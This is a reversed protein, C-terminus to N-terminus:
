YWDDPVMLIAFQATVETNAAVANLARVRIDTKEPLIAPYEFHQCQNGTGTNNASVNWITRFVEGPNRVQLILDVERTTAGGGGKNTGYCFKKLIGVKDNPITYLAMLTQNPVGVIDIAAMLQTAPDDPIGDAVAADATDTHIYVNGVLDATGVNKARFVRMWTGDVATFTLGALTVEKMQLDWNADLGQIEVIETDNADDSSAYLTVAAAPWPYTQVDSTSLAALGAGDWVTETESTDIDATRGFKNVILHDAGAQTANLAMSTGYDPKWASGPGAALILVAVSLCFIAITAKNGM